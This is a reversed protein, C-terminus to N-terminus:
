ATSESMERNSHVVLRVHDSGWSRAWLELEALGPSGRWAHLTGPNHPVLMEVWRVACALQTTALALPRKKTGDRLSRGHLPDWHIVWQGQLYRGGLLNLTLRTTEKPRSYILSGGHRDACEIVTSLGHGTGGNTVGARFAHPSLGPGSDIISAGLLPGNQVLALQVKGRPGAAEAGNSILNTLADELIGREAIVRTERPVSEEGLNLSDWHAPLQAAGPRSIGRARELAGTAAEELDISIVRPCPGLSASLPNDDGSFSRGCMEAADMLQSEIAELNGTSQDLRARNSELLIGTLRNRLDHVLSASRAGLAMLQENNGHAKSRQLLQGVGEAFEAWGEATLERPTRTRLILHGPERGEGMVEQIRWLGVVRGWPGRLGWRNAAGVLTRAQRGIGVSRTAAGSRPLYALAQLCGDSEVLDQMLTSPSPPTARANWYCLRRFLPALEAQADQTGAMTKTHRRPGELPLDELPSM